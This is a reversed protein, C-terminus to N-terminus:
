SENPYHPCDKYTQENECYSHLDYLINETGTNDLNKCQFRGKKYEFYPCEFRKIKEM